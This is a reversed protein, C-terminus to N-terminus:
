IFFDRKIDVLKVQCNLNIMKMLEKVTLQISCNRNWIRLQSYMQDDEADDGSSTSTGFDVAKKATSKLAVNRFLTPSDGAPQFQACMSKKAVPQQQVKPLPHCLSDTPPMEQGIPFSHSRAEKLLKMQPLDQPHHIKFHGTMDGPVCVVNCFACKFLESVKSIQSSNIGPALRSNPVNLLIIPDDPPEVQDYKVELHPHYGQMHTKVHDRRMFGRACHRCRYLSYDKFHRYTHQRYTPLSKYCSGCFSCDYPFKNPQGSSGMGKRATSKPAKLVSNPVVTGETERLEVKVNQLCLAFSNESNSSNNFQSENVTLFHDMRETPDCLLPDNELKVDVREMLDDEFAEFENDQEVVSSMSSSKRKKFADLRAFSSYVSNSFSLESGIDSFDNNDALPDDMKTRKVNEIDDDDLKRRKRKHASVVANLLNSVDLEIEANKTCDSTAECKLGTVANGGGTQEFACSNCFCPEYGAHHYFHYKLEKVTGNKFHPCDPCTLNDVSKADDNLSLEDEIEDFSDLNCDRLSTTQGIKINNLGNECLNDDACEVSKIHADDKELKIEVSCDVGSSDVQAVVAFEEQLSDASPISESILETKIFTVADEDQYNNRSSDPAAELNNSQPVTVSNLSSYNESEIASNSNNSASLSTESSKDGDCNNVRAEVVGSEIEDTTCLENATELSDPHRPHDKFTINDQSSASNDTKM